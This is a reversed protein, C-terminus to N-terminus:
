SSSWSSENNGFLTSVSSVNIDDVVDFDGPVNCDVSLEQKESNKTVQSLVFDIDDNDPEFMLKKINM